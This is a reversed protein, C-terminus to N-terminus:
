RTTRSWRSFKASKSVPKVIYRRGTRSGNRAADGSRGPGKTGEVIEFIVAEGQVLSKYGKGDISSFHVFVDPGGEHGLFGYGKASNFWEVVGALKAM